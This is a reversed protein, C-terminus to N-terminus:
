HARTRTGTYRHVLTSVSETEHEVMHLVSGDIRDIALPIEVSWLNERPIPRGIVSEFERLIEEHWEPSVDRTCFVFDAGFHVLRASPGLPDGIIETFSGNTGPRSAITVRGDPHMWHEAYVKLDVMGDFDAGAFIGAVRQVDDSTPGDTWRVRISAGGAYTDSRVSFKVGPFADRLATRVLKATEACSLYAKTETSTM